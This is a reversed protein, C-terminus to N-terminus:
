SETREILLNQGDWLFKTVTAGLDWERRLGDADHTFTGAEGSVRAGVM